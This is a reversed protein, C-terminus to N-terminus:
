PSPLKFAQLICSAFLACPSASHSTVWCDKELPPWWLQARTVSSSAGGGEQTIGGIFEVVSATVPTSYFSPTIQVTVWLRATKKKHSAGPLWAASCVEKEVMLDLRQKVSRKQARSRLRWDFTHPFFVFGQVCGRSNNMHTIFQGLQLRKPSLKQWFFCLSIAERQM